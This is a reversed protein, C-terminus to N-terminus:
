GCIKETYLKSSNGCLRTFLVQGALKIVQSKKATIIDPWFYLNNLKGNHLEILKLIIEETKFGCNKIPLRNRFVGYVGRGRTSTSQNVSV